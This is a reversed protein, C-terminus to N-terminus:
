DAVAPSVYQLKGDARFHLERTYGEGADWFEITLPKGQKDDWEISATEEGTTRLYVGGAAKTAAEIKASRDKQTEKKPLIVVSKVLEALEDSDAKAAAEKAKKAAVRAARWELFALANTMQSYGMNIVKEYRARQASVDEPSALNGERRWSSIKMGSYKEVLQRPNALEDSHYMSAGCEDEMKADKLVADIALANKYGTAVARRWCEDAYRDAAFARDRWNKRRSIIIAMQYFGRPENKKALGVAEELSLIPELLEQQGVKGFTEGFKVEKTEAVISPRKASLMDSGVDGAVVVTKERNKRAAEVEDRKAAQDTKLVVMNRVTLKIESDIHKSYSGCLEVEVTESKFKSTAEYDGVVFGPGWKPEYIGIGFQKHLIATLKVLENSISSQSYDKARLKMSIECLRNKASPILKVSEFLRFPKALKKVGYDDLVEGFNWGLFSPLQFVRDFDVQQQYTRGCDNTGAPYLANFVRERDACSIASPRGPRSMRSRLDQSHCDVLMVATLVFLILKM